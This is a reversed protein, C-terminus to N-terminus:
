AKELGNVNYITSIRMEQIYRIMSNEGESLIM